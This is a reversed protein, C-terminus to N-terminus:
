FLYFIGKNLFLVMDADFPFDAGIYQKWQTSGQNVMSNIAIMAEDKMTWDTGNAKEM